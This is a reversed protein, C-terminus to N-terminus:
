KKTHYFTQTDAILLKNRHRPTILPSTSYSSEPQTYRADPPGLIRMSWVAARGCGLRYTRVYAHTKLHDRCYWLSTVTSAAADSGKLWGAEDGSVMVQVLTRCHFDFVYGCGIVARVDVLRGCARPLVRTAADLALATVPHM